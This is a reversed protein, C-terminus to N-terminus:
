PKLILKGRTLRSELASHASVAETLPYVGSIDVKLEGSSIWDLMRRFQAEMRETQSFFGALYCGRVQVNPCIRQDNGIIRQMDFTLPQGTANGYLVLRGHDALVELAEAFYEGGRMHLAVDFGDVEGAEKVRQPWGEGEYVAAIGGAAEVASFKSDSSVGGVVRTAGLLKAIQIALGGVGGAGGEVFVTEGPQVRAVDDLAILATMGQVFIAAALEAPLDPPIPIATQQPVVAYEAYGGHDIVGLLRDGRRWGKVQNGVEVVTGAVECGLVLPMVTPSPYPKGARRVTDAYNIGAAEVRVLMEQAQPQPRPRQVIKMVDPPGFGEAEVATMMSM